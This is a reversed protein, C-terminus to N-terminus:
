ILSAHEAEDYLKLFIQDEDYDDIWVMDGDEGDEYELFVANWEYIGNVFFRIGLPAQFGVFIQGYTEISAQPYIKAFRKELSMICRELETVKGYKLPYQKVDFIERIM